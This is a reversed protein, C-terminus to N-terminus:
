MTMMVGVDGPHKIAIAKGDHIELLRDLMINVQKTRARCHWLVDLEVAKEVLDTGALQGLHHPVNGGLERRLRTFPSNESNTPEGIGARAPADPFLGPSDLM